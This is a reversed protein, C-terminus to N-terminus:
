QHNLLKKMPLLQRLRQLHVPAPMAPAAMPAYQAVPMAITEATAQKITIKFGGEEEITLESITSKNVAKLLEQIQKFEM